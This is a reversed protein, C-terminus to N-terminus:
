TEDFPEIVVLKDAEIIVKNINHWAIIMDSTNDFPVFYIGFDDFETIRGTRFTLSSLEITIEKDICNKFVELNMM